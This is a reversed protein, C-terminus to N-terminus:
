HVLLHVLYDFTINLTRHRDKQLKNQADVDFVIAETCAYETKTRKMSQIGHQQQQQQQKPKWRKKATNAHKKEDKERHFSLLAIQANNAASTLAFVSTSSLNEEDQIINHTTHIHCLM